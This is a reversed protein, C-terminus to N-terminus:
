QVKQSQLILALRKLGGVLEGERGSGTFDGGM